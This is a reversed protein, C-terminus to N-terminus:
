HRRAPNGSPPYRNIVVAQDCQNLDLGVQRLASYLFKETPGAFPVGAHEAEQSLYEGLILVSM